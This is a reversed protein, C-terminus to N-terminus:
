RFKREGVKERWGMEIERELWGVNRKGVEERGRQRERKGVM